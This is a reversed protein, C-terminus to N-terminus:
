KVKPWQLQINCNAGTCESAPLAVLATPAAPNAAASARGPSGNGSAPSVGSVGTASGVNCSSCGAVGCPEIARVRYYYTVCTLISKDTFTISNGSISLSNPAAISVENAGPSGTDIATFNATTSRYVKYTRFEGALPAEVSTTVAGAITRTTILNSPAVNASPAQWQVVIENPRETGATAGTATPTGPTGPTTANQPTASIVQVAGGSTLAVQNGYGNMALVTFYYIQGPTLGTVYGVTSSGADTFFPFTGDNVTNYQIMYSEVPGTATSASPALWSLRVAGCWGYSISQISPAGPPSPPIERVGQKGINRPVILSELRYTRYRNAKSTNAELPNDYNGELSEAMGVLTVRVSKILQRALRPTRSAEPNSPNYQGGGADTLRVQSTWGGPLTPEPSVTTGTVNTYYQFNMSRINSALPTEVIEGTPSLTFRYLTYPPNDFRYCPYNATTCGTSTTDQTGLDLNTITVTEEQDGGPYADRGASGDSKTTDAYFSLTNPNPGSVSRLAYIVIEDNGTTVVPFQSNELAPERGNGNPKDTEFDFNGRIAIATPGAFEIQEDPQQYQNVAALTIWRCQSDSVINNVTTSWTPPSSNSTCTTGGGNVSNLRYTFGNAITPTVLDGLTYVRSAQWVFGASGTPIGDRDFDYGIMRLDAVLKDFAVRVNQQLDATEVGRKFVRNGQDYIMLAAVVIITFIATAVMVEALSYGHAARRNKQTNM